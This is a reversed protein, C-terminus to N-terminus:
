DAAKEEAEVAEPEGAVLQGLIGPLGEVFWTFAVMTGATWGISFLWETWSPFYNANLGSAAMGTFVVNARISIMGFVAAAAAWVLGKRTNRTAPSVLLAIPAVYGALIEVWWLATAYRATFIQGINGEAALSGVRWVLAISLATAVAVGLKALLGTEFPTKYLKNSVAEILIAVSLGAAIATLLYIYNLWPHYWLPDIRKGVIMYLTGLSSQHLTSLMVGGLVFFPLIVHLSHELKLISPNKSREMIRPLNEMLLVILYLFVCWAVEFLASHINGWFAIPRYIRWPLGIDFFLRAGMSLYMIAAWIVSRRAIYEYRADKLIYRVFAMTFGSAGLPVVAIVDWAKWLGWPANDTLNTVASLTSFLRFVSVALAGAFLALLLGKGRTLRWRGIMM